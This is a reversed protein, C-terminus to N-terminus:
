FFDSKVISSNPCTISSVLDAVKAVVYMIHILEVINLVIWFISNHVFCLIISVYLLSIVRYILLILLIM